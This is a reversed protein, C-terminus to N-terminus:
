LDDQIRFGLVYTNMTKIFPNFSVYYLLMFAASDVSFLLLSYIAKLRTTFMEWNSHTSFGCDHSDSHRLSFFQNTICKVSQLIQIWHSKLAAQAGERQRRLCRASSLCKEPLFKCIIEIEDFTFKLEHQIQRLLNFM